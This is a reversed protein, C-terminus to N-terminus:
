ETYLYASAHLYVTCKVPSDSLGAAESVRNPEAEVRAEGRQGCAGHPEALNYSDAQPWM